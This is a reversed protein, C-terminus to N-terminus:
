AALLAPLRTMRPAVPAQLWQILHVLYDVDLRLLAAVAAVGELAGWRGAALQAPM